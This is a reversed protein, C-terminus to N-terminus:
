TGGLAPVVLEPDFGLMEAVAGAQARNMAGFTLFVAKRFQLSARQEMSAGVMAAEPTNPPLPFADLLKSLSLLEQLVKACHLYIHTNILNEPTNKKKKETMTTMIMMVMM